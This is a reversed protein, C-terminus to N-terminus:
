CPQCFSHLSPFRSQRPLKQWGTSYGLYMSFNGTVMLRQIHHGYAEDLVQGISQGMCAMDTDGTWYFEPLLGEHDLANREAYEPGEHWYVGRIFERWGILQRVFGEVANLPAAGNRYAALAM